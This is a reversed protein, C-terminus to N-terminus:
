PADPQAEQISASKADVSPTKPVTTKVTAATLALSAAAIALIADQQQASFANPWFAAVLILASRILGIVLAPNDTIFNPM